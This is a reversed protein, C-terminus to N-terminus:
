IYLLFPTNYYITYVLDVQFNTSTICLIYEAPPLKYVNDTDSKVSFSNWSMATACPSDHEGFTHAHEWVERGKCATLLMCAQAWMCCIRVKHHFVSTICIKKSVNKRLFINHTNNKYGMGCFYAVPPGQWICCLTMELHIERVM